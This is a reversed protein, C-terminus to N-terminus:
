PKIYAYGDEQRMAIEVVGAPVVKVFPLLDEAAVGFGKLANGCALFEVPAKGKKKEVEDFLDLKATKSSLQVVAEWNAVVAIEVDVKNKKGYDLMNLVNKLALQWKELFDVHFLVKM